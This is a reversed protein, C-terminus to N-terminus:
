RLRRTRSKATRRPRAQAFAKSVDVAFGPLLHSAAVEGEHVDGQVIYRRGSLRLVLIRRGRPDIIWYESIGARAYDRRKTQLDRRRDDASGSVVEMVLDAGNWFKERIRRAHKRLVFVIDPERFKGVRLRVRLPAMLALGVEPDRVFAALLEYLYAVLLQHSTTTPPLVEVRGDSFEVLHDSALSLYDEESWAGQLPFLHAIEWTPESRCSKRSTTSM